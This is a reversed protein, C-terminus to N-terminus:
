RRDKDVLRGTNDSYGRLYMEEPLICSPLGGEIRQCDNLEKRDPMGEFVTGKKSVNREHGAAM